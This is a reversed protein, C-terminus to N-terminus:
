KGESGASTTGSSAGPKLGFLRLISTILGTDFIGNAALSAAVGYILAQWWLLGDLFGLHLLWGLMTIALGILWSILQAALGTQLPAIWKKLLQTAVPIFAVLTLFTAFVGTLSVGDSPAATVTAAVPTIDVAPAQAYLTASSALTMAFFAM